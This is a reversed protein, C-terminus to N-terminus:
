FCFEDEVSQQETMVKTLKTCNCLELFIKCDAQQLIEIGKEALRSKALGHSPASSSCVINGHVILFMKIFRQPQVNKHVIKHDLSFDHVNSERRMVVETCNAKQLLRILTEMAPRQSAYDIDPDLRTLFHTHFIRRIELTSMQDDLFIAGLTSELIDSM